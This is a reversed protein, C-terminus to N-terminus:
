LLRGAATRWLGLRLLSAGSDCLEYEADATAGMERERETKVAM